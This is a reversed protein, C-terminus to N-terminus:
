RRAPQGLRDHDARDPALLTSLAALLLAGSWCSRAPRRLQM